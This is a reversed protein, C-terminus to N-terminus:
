LCQLIFLYHKNLTAAAANLVSTIFDLQHCYHCLDAHILMSRNQKYLCVCVEAPDVRKLDAKGVKFVRFLCTVENNADKRQKKNYAVTATSINKRRFKM